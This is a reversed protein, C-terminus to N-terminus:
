KAHACFLVLNIIDNLNAKDFIFAYKNVLKSYNNLHLSYTMNMELIVVISLFRQTNNYNPFFSYAYFILDM